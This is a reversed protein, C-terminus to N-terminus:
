FGRFRRHRIARQRCNNDLAPVTYAEDGQVPRLAQIGQVALQRDLRQRCQLREVCVVLDPGDHDRAARTGERGARVYRLHRLLRESIEVHPVKKRGPVFDFENGLRDYRSDAAKGKATAAFKRHKAIENNCRFVRM